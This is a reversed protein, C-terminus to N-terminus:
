SKKDKKKTVTKKKKGFIKEYNERYKKSDVQRYKDGKGASHQEGMVSRRISRVPSSGAVKEICVFYEGLQTVPGFDSHCSEFRRGKRGLRLASGFQAVSQTGQTIVSLYAARTNKITCIPDNMSVRAMRSECTDPVSGLLSKPNRVILTVPNSGAVKADWVCRM